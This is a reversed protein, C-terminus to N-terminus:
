FAQKMEAFKYTLYALFLLNTIGKLARTIESTWFFTLIVKM